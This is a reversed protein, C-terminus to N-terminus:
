RVVSLIRLRIATLKKQLDTATIINIPIYYTVRLLVINILRKLINVDNGVHTHPHAPKHTHTHQIHAHTRTRLHM